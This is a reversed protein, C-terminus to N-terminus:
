SGPFDPYLSQETQTM